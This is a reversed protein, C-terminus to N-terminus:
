YEIHYAYKGPQQLLELLDGKQIWENKSDGMKLNQGEAKSAEVPLKIHNSFSIAEMMQEMGAGEEGEEESNWKAQFASFKVSDVTAKLTGKQYDYHLFDPFIFGFLNSNPGDEGESEGTIDDGIGKISKDFVRDFNESAMLEMLAQYDELKKFPTHIAIRFISQKTSFHFRLKAEQILQKESATFESEGFADKMYVTTDLEMDKEEPNKKQALLMGMVESFNVESVTEGSGDSNISTSTGAEICAMAWLSLLMLFPLCKRM